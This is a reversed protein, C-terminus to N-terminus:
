VQLRKHIKLRYAWIQNWYTHKKEQDDGHKRRVLTHRTQKDSELVKVLLKQPNERGLGNPKHM